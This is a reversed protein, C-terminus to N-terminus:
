KFSKITTKDNLNVFICNYDIADKTLFDKLLESAYLAMLSNIFLGQEEFQDAYGCRYDSEKNQKNSESMGFVDFTHKLEDKKSLFIQGFDKENGIDLIYKHNFIDYVYRRAKHNDVCCIVIDFTQKLEKPIDEIKSCHSFVNGMLFNRSLRQALVEAKYKNINNAYFKQRGINKAEVKDPDIIHLKIGPMDSYVMSYHLRGIEEAIASGTGGCGILAINFDHYRNHISLSKHKIHIM